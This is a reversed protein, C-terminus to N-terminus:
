KSSAVKMSGMLVDDFGHLLSAYGRTFRDEHNAAAGDNCSRIDALQLSGIEVGAIQDCLTAIFAQRKARYLRQGLLHYAQPHLAPESRPRPTSAPQHGYRM